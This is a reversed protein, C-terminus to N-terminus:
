RGFIQLIKDFNAFILGVFPLALQNFLNVGAGITITSNPTSRIREHYDMLRNIAEINEKNTIDGQNLCKIQNQIRDLAKWKASTVIRNISLQSAIFYVATPVWGILIALIIAGTNFAVAATAFAIFVAISYILVTIIRSIRYIVQSHVPSTENLTYTYNGLHSIFSYYCTELYVAPGTLLGFIITGVFLGVGIFQNIYRSLFWSFSISWFVAFLLTFLITSKVSGVRAFVNQLDVLDEKRQISDVIHNNVNKYVYFVCLHALVTAFLGLEIYGMWLFGLKKWQAIENFLLSILLTPLQIVIAVVVFNFLWPLQKKRKTIRCILQGTTSFILAPLTRDPDALIKKTAKLEDEYTNNEIEM